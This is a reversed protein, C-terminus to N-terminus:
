GLTPIQSTNSWKRLLLTVPSPYRSYDAPCVADLLEKKYESRFNHSLNL